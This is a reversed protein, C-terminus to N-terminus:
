RLAEPMLDREAALMELFAEGQPPLIIPPAKPRGPGAM